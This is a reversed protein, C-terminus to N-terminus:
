CSLKRRDSPEAYIAPVQRTPFTPLIRGNPPPPAPVLTLRSKEQRAGARVVASYARMYAKLHFRKAERAHQRETFGELSLHLARLRTPNHTDPACPLESPDTTPITMPTTGTSLNHAQHRLHRADTANASIILRRELCWDCYYLLAQELPLSGTLVAALATAIEAECHQLPSADPPLFPSIVGHIIIVTPALALNASHPM